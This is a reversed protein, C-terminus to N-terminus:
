ENEAGEKKYPQPLADAFIREVEWGHKFRWRIAQANIGTEKAWDEACLTKGNYTIMLNQRKNKYQEEKTVWTCNEPCYGKDNDKREITLHEEYGNEMAWKFFNSSDNKWEECVTIGRGGYAPYHIDKERYCRSIMNKWIGYIRSKSLGHKKNKESMENLVEEKRCGCSSKGRKLVDTTREVYNGCDCKCYWIAHRHGYKNPETFGRQEIVTLRGFKQGVLDKVRSM